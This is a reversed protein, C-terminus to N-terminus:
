FLATAFEIRMGTAVAEPRATTINIAAVRHSKLSSDITGAIPRTAKCIAVHAPVRCLRLSRWIRALHDLARTQSQSGSAGKQTRVAHEVPKTM